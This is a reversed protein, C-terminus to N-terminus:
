NGHAGGDEGGLGGASAAPTTMWAAPELTRWRPRTTFRLSLLDGAQAHDLLRLRRGAFILAHDALDPSGLRFGVEAMPQDLRDVEAWGGPLARYVGGVFGQGNLASRFVLRALVFGGGPRLRYHESFPARDYSHHFSIVAEDGAAAPLSLLARGRDQDWLELRPQPWALWGGALAMALAALAWLWTKGRGGLAM